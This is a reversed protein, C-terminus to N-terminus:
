RFPRGYGSITPPFVRSTVIRIFSRGSLLNRGTADVSVYCPDSELEVSGSPTLSGTSPDIDYSSMVNTDRQGTYAHAGDPSIAFPAPGGQVEIDEQHTLNGTDSDLNYLAIKNEGQITIYVRQM